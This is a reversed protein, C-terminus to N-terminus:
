FIKSCAFIIEKRVAQTFLKGLGKQRSNYFKASTRIDDTACPLIVSKYTM